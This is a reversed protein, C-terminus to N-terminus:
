GAPCCIGVRPSSVQGTDTRSGSLTPPPWCLPLSSVGGIRSQIRFWRRLVLAHACVQGVWAWGGAFGNNSRDNFLRARRLREGPSRTGSSSMDMPRGSRRDSIQHKPGRAEPYPRRRGEPRSPHRKGKRVQAQAGTREEASSWRAREQAPSPVRVSWTRDEPESGSNPGESHRPHFEEPRRQFDSQLCPRRPVVPDM